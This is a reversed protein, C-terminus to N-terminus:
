GIDVLDTMKLKGAYYDKWAADVNPYKKVPRGGQPQGVNITAMYLGVIPENTPYQILDDKKKDTFIQKSPMIKYADKVAEDTVPLHIQMADGDYDANFSKEWLANVHLNTDTTIHPKAASIGHRWLTPARNIIIPRRAMEDELIKKAVPSREEVSTKAQLPNYGMQAMNRVVFPKYMEWAINEPLGVEDLGLTTDPTITSRGTLNMKGYIVKRQFYGQKPVDGAIFDLAGKVGRNKLQPSSPALMGTLEGMSDILAKRNERIDLGAKAADKFAKNQLILGQYLKNADNEMTDGTRGIVIPRVTPPTVPVVSLTYADGPKMNNEKLARLYGVRKVKENLDGKTISGSNMLAEDEALAKDVDIDNLRQRIYAGGKEEEMEKIEKSSVGLLSRAADEFVPNVVPEVLKIHTWKTGQLGGTLSPDFLGGAEPQMTKAFLMRGEKIEGSSAALIDKDTLPLAYLEDGRREVNIGAQRLLAVFRSFTKKEQPFNPAMGAQFAKWFDTNKSGRLVTSEKLVSRVNHAILAGMEMGGIGKPGTFGSGAPSEDLDYPGEIGRGAFNTDSTKFLKHMHQVGVFVGPIKKGSVPDFVTERDKINYKKMEGRVFDIYDPKSFNEIEYTIGKKKAIKGLMTEMTQSPNIRSIVSLSTLVCDVPNGDEDRPMQDDPLIKSCVGKNGYSGAMKDGVQFSKPVKIVVSILSGTKMVGTVEGEFKEEYVESIDNYPHILSKHLLGLVQNQRSEGAEVMALIVPDGTVVKEGKKIVGDDDLKDLQESTFTTPYVATYKRKGTVVGKDLQVSFKDAHVSTMKKAASESIVIGDEHNLGYYPMYAVTLNRGMTLVGDKTFNNDGLRQGAKVRDGKKVTINDSLFTKTALPHDTEYPVQYKKGDDGKIVVVDPTIDAVVGDVPSKVVAFNGVAAEPTPKGNSYATSVLRKEPELLPLSQQIHKDGMLLRNGQSANLFPITSSTYTILAAPDSIIYDLESYKCKIIKGRYVASVMDGPKKAPEWKALPFGVKKNYLDIVKVPGEKGTKTNKVVKYFEHDDGKFAGITAHADIGVKFSEPAAIPDIVGMYSLNVGRTEFPVARESSIGGEGLRTIISASDMFEMPNIQSPIRSLSSGTIFRQLPKTFYVPSFANKLAKDDGPKYADLKSKVKPIIDSAKDIVEKFLDDVTYIHQFELNDREDIDATEKYVSLIKKMAALIAQVNVSSFSTGLTIATTEPDISTNSFYQRIARDKEENSHRDESGDQTKYQVLKDYLVNRTRDMQSQSYENKKYLETGIAAQIDEPGAGLIKLVALAPMTSGLMDIKFMGTSPDMILKFNAGKALNFASELEDNGRKRTYIGSKTRMQSVINYENGDLIVTYRNTYYPVNLLRHKRLEGVKKGTKDLIDIDVYVGDSLNGKSMSAAQEKSPLVDQMRVDVNKLVAKYNNSEIPFKGEVAQKIKQHIEARITDPRCVIQRISM